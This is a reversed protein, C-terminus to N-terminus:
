RDHQLEGAIWDVIIQAVPQVWGNGLLKLMEKNARSLARLPVRGPGHLAPGRLGSGLGDVPKGMPRIFEAIARRATADVTKQQAAAAAQCAV